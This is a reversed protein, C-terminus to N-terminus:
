LVNWILIRKNKNEKKDAYEKAYKWVKSDYYLTSLYPPMSNTPTPENVELSPLICEAKGVPSCGGAVCVAFYKEALSSESLGRVLTGSGCPIFATDFKGLKSGLFDGMKKIFENVGPLDLGNEVFFRRKSDKAVYDKAYTYANTGISPPVYIYSAGFRTVAIRALPGLFNDDVYVKVKSGFKTAIALGLGGYPNSVYVYEDYNDPVLDLFRTKTGGCLYDDRLITINKITQIYYYDKSYNMKCITKRKKVEDDIRNEIM